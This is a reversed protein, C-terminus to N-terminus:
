DEEIAGGDILSAIDEHTQRAETMEEQTIKDGPLKYRGHPLEGEEETGSEIHPLRMKEKVTWTMNLRRDLNTSRGQDAHVLSARTHDTM